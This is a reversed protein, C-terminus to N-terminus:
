DDGGSDAMSRLQSLVHRYVEATAAAVVEPAYAAKAQERAQSGLRQRLAPCALLQHLCDTLEQVQGAQYLLGTRGHAVMGPVGGVRTAVVPVGMAMAEAIVMPANEQASPLVLATAGRLLEALERQDVRGEFRVGAIGQEAVTRRMREVYRVDQVDGCFSTHLRPFRDRLAAHAALLDMPRKLPALVGVFLLHPESAATHGAHREFFLSRVPNPIAFRLHSAGVVDAAYSSVCIFAKCRRHVYREIVSEAAASWFEWGTRHSAEHRKVGHVTFVHCCGGAAAALALPMSDECHVLDPKIQRLTHYAKIARSVLRPRLWPSSPPALFHFWYGGRREHLDSALNSSSIIHIEFEHQYACLGELLAATATQVGGAFSAHDPPYSTLIAIRKM